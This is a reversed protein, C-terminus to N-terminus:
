LQLERRRREIFAAFATALFDEQRRLSEDVRECFLRQGEEIEGALLESFRGTRIGEDVREQNYLAIDSVIIRALRRAKQEAEPSNAAAVEGEEAHRIRNNVEEAFDRAPGVREPGEQPQGVVVQESAPNAAGAPVANGALRNIKPILDDAIHHKEIYDDAGYLSSPTRKYAMKNYVSSLLIIKVEELGPRSRVKDVLEFAYLGPLAVDVLAVQPPTSEMCHLAEAGSHCIQFAIGERGLIEGVTTCLSEDSHAVLVRFQGATRAAAPVEVRFIQRCRTCRLTIRKGGLRQRDLRFRVSCAPCAVIM